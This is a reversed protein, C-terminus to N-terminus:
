RMLKTDIRDEPADKTESKKMAAAFKASGDSYQLAVACVQDM